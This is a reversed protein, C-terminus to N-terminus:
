RNLGSTPESETVLTACVPLKVLLERLPLGIVLRWAGLGGGAFGALNGASNTFGAGGLSSSILIFFLGLYLKSQKIYM